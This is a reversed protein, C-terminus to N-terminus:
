PQNRSQGAVGVADGRASLGPWWPGTLSRGTPAPEGECLASVLREMALTPQLAGGKIAADTELCWTLGAILRTSSRRKAADAVRTAAFPPLGLAGAAASAATGSEILARYRLMKRWQGALISLMLLPAEDHLLRRTAGIADGPNGMAVAHAWDFVSVAAEGPSLVSLEDTTLPGTAGRHSVTLTELDQSLARMSGDARALLYALAEDNLRFGRASAERQLWTRLAAPKLPDCAVTVARKALAGAWSKRRDLKATIFVLCTTTAPDDCYATLLDSSALREADRLVIFRRTAFAPLTQAVAVLDEAATEVGSFVHSNMLDDPPAAYRRLAALAEDALWSEEGVILYLPDIRGAALQKVLEHPTM